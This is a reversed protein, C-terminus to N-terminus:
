LLGSEFASVLRCGLHTTNLGDHKHDHGRLVINALESKFEEVLKRAKERSPIKFHDLMPFNLYFPNFIKPKIQSQLRTM